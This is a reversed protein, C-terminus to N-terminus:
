SKGRKGCCGSSEIYARIADAFDGIAAVVADRRGEPLLAVVKDFFANYRDEIEDYVKKGQTTLSIKVYRRDDESSKRDVLGVLVLGQITRSMTSADLELAEALEVLSVEGRAGIELITHCQATTVGCCDNRGEFIDGAQREIIRLKMRLEQIKNIEM